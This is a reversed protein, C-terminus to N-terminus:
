RFFAQKLKQYHFFSLSKAEFGVKKFKLGAIIEKILVLKSKKGLVIKIEIKNKYPLFIKEGEEKFRTDTIFFYKRPTALLLSDEAKFGTLYFINIPNTILFADLQHKKLEQNLRTFRTYPM